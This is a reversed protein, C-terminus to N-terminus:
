TDVGTMVPSVGGTEGEPEQEIEGAAESQQHDRKTATQREEEMSGQTAVEKTDALKGEASVTAPGGQVESAALPAAGLMAATEPM